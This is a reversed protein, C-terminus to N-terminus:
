KNKKAAYKEWLVLVPAANFISSYTGSIIGVLMALVFMKITDGGLVYLASLTFIVTLSTAVSRSLTEAVSYNTVDEIDMVKPLKGLNERIRDFVVITDHVSFGLVTLVATIFLGDVEVNKFHGLIAFLGVLVLADHLMAVVASVGFRFSSYPKPVNRFAFAIYVMIGVVAWSLAVFASRTTEAGISPGVTEFSLQKSNPFVASVGEKIENNRQPEVPKTRVSYKNGSEPVVAEVEISKELYVKRLDEPNIGSEFEYRFVSGGTFDVSMNLGWVLLAVIGPLIVVASFVLYWIKYKMLNRMKREEAFM